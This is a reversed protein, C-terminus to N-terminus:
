HSLTRKVRPLDSTRDWGPGGRKVQKKKRTGSRKSKKKDPKQGTKTIIRDMNKAVDDLQDAYLDAYTNATVTPSSHGMTKQVFHLSAGSACALSAYTHRLEHITLPALHLRKIVKNWHTHRRWNNSRLMGGEPSTIAPAEPDRGTVHPRLAEVVAAPLPVSRRSAKTKTPGIVIKGEVEPASRRVYLRRLDLDVDMVRLGVLESWRLGTYALVLAVDGQDGLAAALANVEAATLYRHRERPPIPPASVGAAPNIAIRGDAVAVELVCRLLRLASVKAWPGVTLQSLWTAISSRSIENVPVNGFAPAIRLKWAQRYGSWTKVSVAPQKTEAYHDWIQKLPVRGARPDFRRLGAAVEGDREAKFAKAAALTPFTKSTEIWRGSSENDRVLFRVQWSVTGDRGERRRIGRPTSSM